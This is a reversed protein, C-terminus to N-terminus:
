CTTMKYDPAVFALYINADLYFAFCINWGLFDSFNLGFSTFRVEIYISLSPRINVVSTWISPLFYSCSIEFSIFYTSPVSIASLFLNVFWLSSPSSL